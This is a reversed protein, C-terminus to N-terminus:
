DRYVALAADLRRLPQRPEVLRAFRSALVAGLAAMVVPVLNVHVSAKGVHVPEGVYLAVFVAVVAIAITRGRLALARVPRVVDRAHRSTLDYAPVGCHPCPADAAVSLVGHRPCAITSM